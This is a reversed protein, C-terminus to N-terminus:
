GVRRAQEEGGFVASAGSELHDCGGAATQAADDAALGAEVVDLEGGVAAGNDVGFLAAGAREFDEACIGSAAGAYGEGM